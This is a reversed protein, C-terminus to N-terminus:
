SNHQSTFKSVLYLSNGCVAIHMPFGPRPLQPKLTVWQGLGGATPPTFAFTDSTSNFDTTNGGVVLIRQKFYVGGGPSSLPLPLPALRRWETSDEGDPCEVVDNRDGNYGGIAILGGEDPPLCILIFDSRRATMRPLTSWSCTSPLNVNVSYANSPCHHPASCPHPLVFRKSKTDFAECTDLYESVNCGGAVIIQDRQLCVAPNSRKEQM